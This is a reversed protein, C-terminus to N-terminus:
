PLHLSKNPTLVLVPLDVTKCLETLLSPPFFRPAPLCFARPAPEASPSDVGFCAKAHSLPLHPHIYLRRLSRPTPSSSELRKIFETQCSFLLPVPELVARLQVADHFCKKCRVLLASRRLRASHGSNQLRYSESLSCTIHFATPWFM